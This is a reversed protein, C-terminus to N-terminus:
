LSILVASSRWRGVEGRELGNGFRFGERREAVVNSDVNFRSAFGCVEADVDRTDKTRDIRELSVTIM